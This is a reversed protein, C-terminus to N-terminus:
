AFHPRVDDDFDSEFNKNHMYEEFLLKAEEKTANKFGRWVAGEGTIVEYYEISSAM